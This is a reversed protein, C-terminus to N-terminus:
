EGTVREYILGLVGAAVGIGLSILSFGVAVGAGLKVGREFTEDDTLTSIVDDSDKIVWGQICNSCMEGLQPDNNFHYGFGECDPCEQAVDKDRRTFRAKRKEEKEKLADTDRQGGFRNKLPTAKSLDKVRKEGIVGRQGGFQM